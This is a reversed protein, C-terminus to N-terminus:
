SAQLMQRTYALHWNITKCMCTCMCDRAAPLLYLITHVQTHHYLSVHIYVPIKTLYLGEGNADEM